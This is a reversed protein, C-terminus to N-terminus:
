PQKSKGNNFNVRQLSDVVEEINKTVEKGVKEVKKAKFVLKRIAVGVEVRENWPSVRM